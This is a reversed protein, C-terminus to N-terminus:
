KRFTYGAFSCVTAPPITKAIPAPCAAWTPRAAACTGYERMFARLAAHAEFAQIMEHAWHNAVRAQAASRPSASGPRRDQYQKLVQELAHLDDNDPDKERGARIFQDAKAWLRTVELVAFDTLTNSADPERSTQWFAINRRLTEAQGSCAEHDQTQLCHVYNAADELVWHGVLQDEGSPSLAPRGLLGAILVTSLGGLLFTTSENTSSQTSASGSKTDQFRLLGPGAQSTYSLTLTGREGEKGPDITVQDQTSAASLATCLRQVEATPVDIIPRIIEAIEALGGCVVNCISTTGM